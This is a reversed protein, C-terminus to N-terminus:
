EFWLLPLVAANSLFSVPVYVAFFVEAIVIILYIM